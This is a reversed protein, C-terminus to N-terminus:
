ALVKASGQDVGVALEGEAVRFLGKSADADGDPDLMILQFQGNTDSATAQDIQGSGAVVDFSQLLNTTALDGNADNYFLLSGSPDMYVGAQVYDARTQNDSATVVQDDPSLSAGATGAGLSFVNLKQDNYLSEVIGLVPNGAGARVLFGNTNLRVADGIKITSSNAVRYYFIGPHEQGIFCRRFSFGTSATKAM